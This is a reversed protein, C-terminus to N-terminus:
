PQLHTLLSIHQHSEAKIHIAKYQRHLAQCLSQVAYLFASVLKTHRFEIAGASAPSIRHCISQCNFIDMKDCQEAETTAHTPLHKCRRASNSLEHTPLPSYEKIGVDAETTTCECYGIRIVTAMRTRGLCNQAVHSASATPEFRAVFTAIGCCISITLRGGVTVSSKPSNHSLSLMRSKESM